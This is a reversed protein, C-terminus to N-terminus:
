WPVEKWSCLLGYDDNITVRDPRREVPVEFVHEPQDVYRYFGATQANKGSGYHLVVVIPFSFSTDRQRIRGRLTFGGGPRDAAQWSFDLKPAGMGHLWQRFFGELDIGYSRTLSRQLDMNTPARGNNEDLFTRFAQKFLEDGKAPDRRIARALTRLMHMFYGGKEYMFTQRDWEYGDRNMASVFRNGLCLPTVTQIYGDDKMLHENWGKVEEEAWKSGNVRDYEELVLVASYNAFGESFWQDRDGGIGVKNGWWQHAIEHAVFSNLWRGELNMFSVQWLLVLSSFGRGVGYPHPTIGLSAYPYEGWWDEYVGLALRAQQVLSPGKKQFAVHGTNTYVAVPTGDLAEGKDIRVSSQVNFTINPSPTSSVYHFCVRDPVEDEAKCPTPTGCAVAVHGRPVVFTTDYTAYDDWGAFTPLWADGTQIAYFGLGADRLISGEIELDLVLREGKTYTRPLFVTVDGVYFESDPFKPQVLQAEQGDVRASLVHQRPSIYFDVWRHEPLKCELTARSRMLADKRRTPEVDM